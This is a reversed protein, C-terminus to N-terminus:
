KKRRVPNRGYYGRFTNIRTNGDGDRFYGSVFTGDKKVYPSVYHSRIHHYKPTYCMSNNRNKM